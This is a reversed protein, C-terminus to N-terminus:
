KPQQIKDEFHESATHGAKDDPKKDLVMFVLGAILACLALSKQLTWPTAQTGFWGNTQVIASYSVQSVVILCTALAPKLTSFAYICLLLYIIRVLGGGFVALNMRQIEDMSPFPRKGTVIGYFVLLAAGSVFALCAVSYTGGKLTKVLTTEISIQSVLLMSAVLCAMCAFFFQSTNSM